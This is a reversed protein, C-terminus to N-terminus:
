HVANECLHEKQGPPFPCHPTRSIADDTSRNPRYPFQHPDIIDPLISNIHAMVLRKFSKMAISMLVVPHYDILCTVKAEKAVPVINTQNFCTPIVFGTLSLNFIDTFVSALERM